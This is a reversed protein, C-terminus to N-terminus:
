SANPSALRLSVDLLDPKLYRPKINLNIVFIAKDGAEIRYLFRVLEPLGIGSLRLDFESLGGTEEDTYTSAVPRMSEIRGTLGSEGALNELYSFPKFDAGRAAVQRTFRDRGSSLERYQAALYRIEALDNELRDATQALRDRREALPALVFIQIAVAALFLVGLWVFIRERRQLRM